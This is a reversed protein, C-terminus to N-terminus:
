ENLASTIQDAMALFIEGLGNGAVMVGAFIALAVFAAIIGYEIATAGSQWRDAPMPRADTREPMLRM